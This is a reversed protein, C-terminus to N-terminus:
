LPLRVRFVSGVSPESEMEVKGGMSETIHRVIALGLGTGGTARSRAADVRYFREFIRPLHEKSIGIGTDEVEFVAEDGSEYVRVKVGGENTYRIANQLLNMAVQIVQPRDGLAILSKPADIEISLGKAHAPQELQQIAYRAIEALNIETPEPPSSEAAALTLLDQSLLTLRDVEAIIKQLYRDLEAKSVDPDDELMEAIARISAMPTRLEHSVNAVFDRRVTELRRIDSVDAIWLAILATDVKFARVRLSRQEPYDVDFDRSVPVDGAVVQDLVEVVDNSMAIHHLNKGEIGPAKLLEKAQTNAIKVIGEPTCVIVARDLSDIIADKLSGEERPLPPSNLLPREQALKRIAFVATVFGAIIVIAPWGATPLRIVSAVLGAFSALSLGGLALIRLRANEEM